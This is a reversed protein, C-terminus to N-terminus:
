TTFLPAPDIDTTLVLALDTLAVILIPDAGPSIAMSGAPLVTYAVLLPESETEIMSVEEFM